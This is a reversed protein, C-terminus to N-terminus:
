VCSNEMDSIWIDLTKLFNFASPHLRFSSVEAEWSGRGGAKQRIMCGHTRATRGPWKGVKVKVGM